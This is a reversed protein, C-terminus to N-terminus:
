DAPLEVHPAVRRLEEIFAAHDLPSVLLPLASGGLIELRDMSLAPASVPSRSRRVARIDSLEVRWRFPGCRAVLSSDDLRYYTGFWIWGIFGTLLGALGFWFTPFEGTEGPMESLPALWCVLVSALLILGLWWDKKSVFRM